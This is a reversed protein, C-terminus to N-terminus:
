LEDLMRLTADDLDTDRAKARLMGAIGSSGDTSAQDGTEKVMEAVRRIEASSLVSDDGLLDAVAQHDPERDFFRRGLRKAEVWAYHPRLTPNEAGAQIAAIGEELHDGGIALTLLADPTSLIKLAADAHEASEASTIMVSTEGTVGLEAGGAEWTVEVSVRYVGGAPFLAGQPGRLLTVSHAVSGGPELMQLPDEDVCLVVPLFNRVTGSPDVVKGRVFGTKMSLTAPAPLAQSSVNVLAFNIRVPAGIPVSPLLPAVKLVLGPADQIMDDASIPAVSYSMGFAVGGPRVWIDPMHRLRKQDDPAHAWRINNPFQVPPLASAAIVDTTNMIGFDSTNHYLGMAHGIEHVATRFYPGAATGFRKGKILGWPDANPVIWHSAIGAGERPVQNSDTAGSDYMIGRATVDILRVCLVHYRWESDLDASDRRALMTAHMEADSWSEESPEVVDANSERVTLDWGVLDFITKWNVGAGNDVPRESQPVRDIELVARRLFPSVWGMTLSAVVTGSSNRVEGSLYDATSPYGAPAPVWAMVATFKDELTWSSTAATFRHLEFSLTFRGAVTAAQLIKTVRVYYRYRNRAFIPIGDAPSPEMLAAPPVPLPSPPTFVPIQHLYLDGSATVHTGNREVRLTGDYHISNIAPAAQVPTYRILYCGGRLSRTAIVPPHIQDETVEEDHPATYGAVLPDPLPPPPGGPEPIRLPAPAYTSTAPWASADSM